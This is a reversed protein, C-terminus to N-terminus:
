RTGKDRDELEGGIERWGAGRDNESYGGWDDYDLMPAISWERWRGAFVGISLRLYRCGILM